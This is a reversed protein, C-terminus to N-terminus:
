VQARQAPDSDRDPHGNEFEGEETIHAQARNLLNTRIVIRKEQQIQKAAYM